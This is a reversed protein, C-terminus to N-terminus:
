NTTFILKETDLTDMYCRVKNNWATREAATIHSVTDEIHEKYISDTFPMDILYANGDGIKIGPINNDDGDTMYDSYVYICGRVSVLEPHANWNATTDYFIPTTHQNILETINTHYVQLGPLDLYQKTAM